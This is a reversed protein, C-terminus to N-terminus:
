SPQPQLKHTAMLEAAKGDAPLDTIQAIKKRIQNACKGTKQRHHLRPLHRLVTEWCIDYSLQARYLAQTLFILRLLGQQAVRSPVKTICGWVVTAIELGCVPSKSGCCRLSQFYSHNFTLLTNICIHRFQYFIWYTYFQLFCQIFLGLFRAWEEAWWILLYPAGMSANEFSKRNGEKVAWHTGITTWVTLTSSSGWFQECHLGFFLFGLDSSRPPIPTCDLAHCGGSCTSRNAWLAPHSRCFLCGVLDPKMGKTSPWEWLTVRHRFGFPVMCVLVSAAWSLPTVSRGKGSQQGTSNEGWVLTGSPMKCSTQSKDFCCCFFLYEMLLLLELPSSLRYVFATSWNEKVMVSATLAINSCHPPICLASGPM